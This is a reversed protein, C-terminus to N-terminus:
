KRSRNWSWSGPTLNVAGIARVYTESKLAAASGCRSSPWTVPRVSTSDSRAPMQAADVHCAGASHRWATPARPHIVAGRRLERRPSNDASSQRPVRSREIEIRGDGRLQMATHGGDDGRTHHRLTRISTRATTTAPPSPQSTQCQTSRPNTGGIGAARKPERLTGIDTQTHSRGDTSVAHHSDGYNTSGPRAIPRCIQDGELRVMPAPHRVFFVEVARHEHKPGDLHPHCESPTQHLPASAVTPNVPGVTTKRDLIVSTWPNAIVGPVLGDCRQPQTTRVRIQAWDGSPVAYRSPGGHTIAYCWVYELRRVAAFGRDVIWRCVM